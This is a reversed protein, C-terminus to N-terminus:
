ERGWNGATSQFRLSDHRALVALTGNRLHWSTPQIRRHAQVRIVAIGEELVHAQGADGDSVAM